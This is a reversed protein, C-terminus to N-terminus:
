ATTAKRTKKKPSPDAVPPMPKLSAKAKKPKASTEISPDSAVPEAKVPAKRKAPAKSASVPSKGNHKAKFEAAAQQWHEDHKGHPRGDAEWLEYARQKIWNESDAM